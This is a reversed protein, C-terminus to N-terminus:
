MKYLLHMHKFNKCKTCCLHMHKFNKCKTCCLHMHKFNLMFKWEKWIRKQRAIWKECKHTKFQLDMTYKLIYQATSCLIIYSIKQIVSKRISRALPVSHAFCMPPPIFVILPEVVFCTSTPSSINITHNVKTPLQSYVTMARIKDLILFIMNVFPLAELTM